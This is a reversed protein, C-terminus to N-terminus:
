VEGCERGSKALTLEIMDRDGVMLLKDPVQAEIELESKEGLTRADEMSGEIVNRLNFSGRRLALRGTDARSLLLLNEAM